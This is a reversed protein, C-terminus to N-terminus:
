RYGPGSSEPTVRIARLDLLEIGYLEHRATEVMAVDGLIAISSVRDLILTQNGNALYVSVVTKPEAHFVDGDRRLKHRTLLEIASGNQM